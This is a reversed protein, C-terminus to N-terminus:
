EGLISSGSSSLPCACVDYCHACLTAFPLCCLLPRCSFFSPWPLREHPMPVLRPPEVPRAEGWSGREVGGWPGLFGGMRSPPHFLWTFMLPLRFCCLLPCVVNCLALLLSVPLCSIWPLCYLIKRPNSCRPSRTEASRAEGGRDGGWGM